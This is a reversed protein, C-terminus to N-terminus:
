VGRNVGQLAIQQFLRDDDAQYDDNEEEMEAGGENRNEGQWDRDHHREDRHVVQM